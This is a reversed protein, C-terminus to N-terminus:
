IVSLASGPVRKVCRLHCQVCRERFQVHEVTRDQFPIWDPYLRSLSDGQQTAAAPEPTEPAGPNGHRCNEVVGWVLAGDHGRPHPPALRGCTSKTKRVMGAPIGCFIYVTGDRWARTRPVQGIQAAVERRHGAPETQTTARTTQDRSHKRPSTHRGVLNTRYGTRERTPHQVVVAATIGPLAESCRM